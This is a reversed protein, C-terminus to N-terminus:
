LLDDMATDIKRYQFTFGQQEIKESSVRGSGILIEAMEGLMLKLVFAPVNPLLLPKGMARAASRTLTKNTVPKPAVANYAGEYGTNELADVFIRVLDDIHIWSMYQKGSALPAGAYFRIPKTLEQLAGGEESLVVGIRLKVTRIGIKAFDDASEEWAQAVKALFDKGEPSEEDLWTKGNDAGYISIGSASIFAKPPNPMKRVYEHLLAASATRSELIVKKRKETWRGDAVNAGALHIIYDLKDFAAPDIKGEEIDWTYWTIGEEQRSKRSLGRIEYGKKLLAEQLQQGILGSAGTILVSEAM